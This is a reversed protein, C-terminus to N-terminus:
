PKAERLARMNELDNMSGYFYLFTAAASWYPTVIFYLPIITLFGFYVGKSYVRRLQAPTLKHYMRESGVGLYEGNFTIKAKPFHKKLEWWHGLEHVVVSLLLVGITTGVELFANIM